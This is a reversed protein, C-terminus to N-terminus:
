NSRQQMQCLNSSLVFRCNWTWCVIAVQTGLMDDMRKHQCSKYNFNHLDDMWSNTLLLILWWPSAVCFLYITAHRIRCCGYLLLLWPFTAVRLKQLMRSSTLRAFCDHNFICVGFFFCSAFQIEVNVRPPSWWPEESPRHSSKRM